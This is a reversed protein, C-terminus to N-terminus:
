PYPGQGPDGAEGKGNEQAPAGKGRGEGRGRADDNQAVALLFAGPPKAADALRPGVGECGGIEAAVGGLRQEGGAFFRGGEEGDGQVRELKGGRGGRGPIQRDGHEGHQRLFGGLGGLLSEVAAGLLGRRASSPFGAQCPL